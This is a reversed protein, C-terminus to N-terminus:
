VSSYHKGEEWFRAVIAENFDLDSSFCENFVDAFPEQYNLIRTVCFYVAFKGCSNSGGQVRSLNYNCLRVRGVRKRASEETQGLSDFCEYSGKAIKFVAYWHSGPETSRDVNVICFSRQKAKHLASKLENAAFVGLFFGRACPIDLIRQQLEVGLM